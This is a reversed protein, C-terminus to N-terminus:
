GIQHSHIEKKVLEYSKVWPHLARVAPPLEHLAARAEIASQYNGYLLVYWTGGHFNAHFYQAHKDLRHQQVFSKIAALDISAMLQLTYKGSATLIGSELRSSTTPKAPSTAGQPANQNTSSSPVTSAGESSTGATQHKRYQPLYANLPRDPQKHNAEEVNTPKYQKVPGGAAAGDEVGRSSSNSASMSSQSMDNSVTSKEARAQYNSSDGSSTSERRMIRSARIALPQGQAAARKIWLEAAKTDRVTGIGYFYMYGLAYQADPDGRGAAAEIRSLSCNFKQLFLNNSCAKTGQFSQTNAPQNGKNACGALLFLFTALSFTKLILNLKM